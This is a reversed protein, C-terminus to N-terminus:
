NKESFQKFLEFEQDAEAKRKLRSYILFLQYHVDPARPVLTAAKQLFPLAEAFKKEKILLRGLDYNSNFHNQNLLIAKRLYKQAEVAQNRDALIAGLLANSDATERLVLAKRVENLALDYNGLGRATVALFYKIEPIKPFLEAAEKFIQFAKEVEKLILHTGGLRVFYVDKTKNQAVARAYFEAAQPYKLQKSAIEGLMFNADAFDPKLLLANEFHEWAIEDNKQDFAILGLYYNSEASSSIQEFLQKAEELKKTQYLATGLKFLIDPSKPQILNAKQLFEAAKTFNGLSSYIFGLNIITQPHEPNLKLVTEFIQVADKERKTKALLIGLNALPSVAKPNLRISARYESEAKAFDGKQDYIIGLLNHVDANTPASKRAELLIKEAEAFNGTQLYNAAATLSKKVDPTPQSFTAVAFGLLIMLFLNSLKIM